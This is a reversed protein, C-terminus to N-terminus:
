FYNLFVKTVLYNHAMLNISVRLLIIERHSDESGQNKLNELLASLLTTISDIWSIRKKKDKNEYKIISKKFSSPIWLTIRDNTGQTLVIPWKTQYDMERNEKMIWFNSQSVINWTGLVFTIFGFFNTENMREWTLNNNIEWDVNHKGCVCLCVFAVM